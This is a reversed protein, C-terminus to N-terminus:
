DGKKGTDDKKPAPPNKPAEQKPPPPPPPSKVPPDQKPPPDNRTPPPDNQKPPDYKPTKTVPPDQKPTKTVPPDQKPTKTTPPNQKVPEKPTETTTKTPPATTTTKTPENKIITKTPDATKVPETKTITTKTPETSKVPNSVKPTNTVENYIAPDTVVTNKVPKIKVGPDTSTTQKTGNNGAVENPIDVKKPTITTKTVNSVENVNPGTYKIKRDDIALTNITKVKSTNSLVEANKEPKIKTGDTITKTINTVPVVTWHVPNSTFHSNCVVLNSVYDRWYIRPTTPYWAYYGSGYYDNCHRWTAWNPAWRGGPMWVWGYYSSWFWRGYNYCHNGWRYHSRWMWGCSTFEWRGYTYPNWSSGTCENPQWIYIIKVETTKKEEVIQNTNTQTEVQQINESPTNYKAVSTNERVLNQKPTENATVDNSVNQVEPQQITEEDPTTLEKILETSKIPIWRGQSNLEPEFREKYVQNSDLLNESYDITDVISEFNPNSQTQSPVFTTNKSFIKYAAISTVASLVVASLIIAFLKKNTM